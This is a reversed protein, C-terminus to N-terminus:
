LILFMDIKKPRQFQGLRRNRLHKPGLLGFMRGFSSKREMILLGDLGKKCQCDFINKLASYIVSPNQTKLVEPGMPDDLGYKAKFARVWITEPDDLVMWGLRMLLAQNMVSPKKLGLGGM